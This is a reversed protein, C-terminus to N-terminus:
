TGAPRLSRALRMSVGRIHLLVQTIDQCIAYSATFAAAGFDRRDWMHKATRTLVDGLFHKTRFRNKKYDGNQTGRVECCFRRIAPHILSADVPVTQMLVKSTYSLMLDRCVPDTMMWPSEQISRLVHRRLLEVTEPKDLFRAIRIFWRAAIDQASQTTDSNKPLLALSRNLIRPLETEHENRQLRGLWVYDNSYISKGAPGAIFSFRVLAALRLFM